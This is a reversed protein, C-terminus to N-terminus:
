KKRALFLKTISELYSGAVTVGLCSGALTYIWGLLVDGVRVPPAGFWAVAVPTIVSYFLLVGVLSLAAIPRWVRVLRDDSNIEAKIIDAQNDAVHTITGLIAQKLEVELKDKNIQQDQYKNVVGLVATLLPGSLATLLISLM